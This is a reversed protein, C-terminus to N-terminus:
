FGLEAQLPAASRRKAVEVQVGSWSNVLISYAVEEDTWGNHEAITYLRYALARANEARSPGMAETLRAADDQGGGATLARVLHQACEWDTLRHDTAPNWDAPLEDRKLLRVKGKASALVGAQVLGDIATNKARALGDAEGSPKEQFGHQEYWAVCFRTQEDMDGVPGAIAEDFVRNIEQLAVRVPMASGGAELVKSCRSFIAMGPGIIAQALDGPSINGQLLTRLAGPLERKLAAVFDRKSMLPANEARSRCVLIVATALANTGQAVKRSPNNTRLPWTGDVVFGADCIAQLFTAWGTSTFARDEGAQERQKYAYYLTMPEVANADRIAQLAQKMGDLWFAEPDKDGRERYATAVLEDAKPTVLTGTLSPVIPRLARRLWVYFFDSLDAYGVNDYYPPDTSVMIRPSRDFKNGQAPKQSVRSPALAPAAAVCDAVIEACRQFNASSDGFPSAECFDWVMPLAQQPLGKVAQDKVYWTSQVSGFQLHRSLAMALEIAVANAYASISCSGNDAEEEADEIRARVADELIRTPSERILDALTLLALKQRPTLLSEWTTFGYGYCTGGTLREPTEGSLFESSASQCAEYESGSLSIAVMEDSPPLYARCKRSEAVTAILQVLLRKNKGESRIYDASITADVGSLLCWFNGGRTAKTGMRARDIEAASLNRNKITIRYGSREENIEPVVIVEQGKRTSLVFSSALPVHAGRCVPNPSAVTWAWLWAVVEAESGDPLKAKPYLHGIRKKAEEQLWRGYYRVDEALGEARKGHWGSRKLKAQSEPNVPPRGAFMPPIEVLAKSILVAVPNLDSGLSRLGLRQAELPITGSGCFPDLIVPGHDQLYQFVAEADTPPEEGREWAICRAIEYRAAELSRAAAEGWDTLGGIWRQKDPEFCGSILTHLRQRERDQDEKTPFRDPWASPDDVLQAFLIARAAPVPTQAWWKHLRTPYGKPAKQKMRASPEDIGPLPLAVEILKKRITTPPLQPKEAQRVAPTPKDPEKIATSAAADERYDAITTAIQQLLNAREDPTM